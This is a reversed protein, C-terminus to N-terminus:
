KLGAIDPILNYDYVIKAFDHPHAIKDLSAYIFLGGLIVRCLFQVSYHGLLNLIKTKM